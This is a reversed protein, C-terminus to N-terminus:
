DVGFRAKSTVENCVDEATQNSGGYLLSTGKSEVEVIEQDVKIDLYYEVYSPNLRPFSGSLTQESGTLPKLFRYPDRQQELLQGSPTTSEIYFM